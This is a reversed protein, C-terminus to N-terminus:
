SRASGDTSRSASASPRRERWPGRRLPGWGARLAALDAAEDVDRMWRLRASSFRPPLSAETDALAHETSWRVGAFLGPAPRRRALGVLWYGGDEAPGFAADHRGLARFAAAVDAPEVQPTDTGLIVAPGPPLAAFARAMRAGLDGGGQDMRLTGEPWCAFRARGPANACLVTEWREDAGLRALLRAVSHRYFRTAEAPGVEAALRSKNRGMLPPRGMVVVRRGWGPRLRSM